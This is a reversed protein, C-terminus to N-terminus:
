QGAAKVKRLICDQGARKLLTCLNDADVRVLTETVIRWFVGNDKTEIKTIELIIDNLRTRHKQTLLSAVEAAKDDNRFAALQVRYLPEDSKPTQKQKVKAPKQPKDAPKATPILSKPAKKGASSENSVTENDSTLPPRTDEADLSKVEASAVKMTTKNDNQTQTEAEAKSEKSAESLTVPPLEPDSSLPRLNEVDVDSKSNNAIMSMVASDQNEIAKGGIDDPKVKIPGEPASIIQVDIQDAPLFIPMLFYTVVGAAMTILALVLLSRWKKESNIDGKVAM